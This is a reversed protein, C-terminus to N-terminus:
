FILEDVRAATEKPRKIDVIRALERRRKVRCARRASTLNTTNESSRGDRSKEGGSSLASLENRRSGGRMRGVESYQNDEREM